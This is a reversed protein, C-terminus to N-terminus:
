DEAVDQLISIARSALELGEDIQEQNLKQAHIAANAINKVLFLSKELFGYQEYQGLFERILHTLSFYKVERFNDKSKLKKSLITRLLFEIQMRAKALAVLNDEDDLILSRKVDDVEEKSKQSSKSDLNEIENQLEGVGPFNINIQNSLNSITNVNSSILSLNQNVQTKFDNLDNKTSEVKMELELLKGIKIKSFFPFFLLLVGLGLIILHILSIEEPCTLDILPYVKRIATIGISWSLIFFAIEKGNNWIWDKMLM